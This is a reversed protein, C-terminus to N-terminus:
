WVNHRFFSHRCTPRKCILSTGQQHIFGECVCLIGSTFDVVCRFGAATLRSRAEDFARTLTTEVDNFVDTQEATLNQKAM